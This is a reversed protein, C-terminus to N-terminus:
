KIWDSVSVNKKANTVWYKARGVTLNTAPYFSANMGGKIDLIKYVSGMNVYNYYWATPLVDKYQQPTPNSSTPALNLFTKVYIKAAEARIVKNAPGFNGNAYGAMVGKEKMFCIAPATMLGVIDKYCETGPNFVKWQTGAPTVTDALLQALQARTIYENSGPNAVSLPKVASVPKACVVSLPKTGSVVQKSLPAFRGFFKGGLFQGQAALTVGAVVLVAVAILVAYFKRNKKM